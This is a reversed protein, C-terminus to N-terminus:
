QHRPAGSANIGWGSSASLRKLSIMLEDFLFSAGYLCFLIFFFFIVKTFFSAMISRKFSSRGFRGFIGVYLSNLFSCCSHFSIFCTGAALTFSSHFFNDAGHLFTRHSSLLQVIFETLIIKFLIKFYFSMETFGCLFQSIFFIHNGSEVLVFTVDPIRFVPGTAFFFQAFIYLGPEFSGRCGYVTTVLLM